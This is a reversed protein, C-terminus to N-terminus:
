LNKIIEKAAKEAEDCLAKATESSRSEAFLFIGDGRKNSRLLVRNGKEGLFIGEGMGSKGGSNEALRSLIRQPPCQIRLFRNELAFQPINEIFQELKMLSKSIIKLSNLALLAGDFLFPESLALDRASKDSNDNPCLFFRYVNRNTIKAIEEASSPFEAPVSFDCGNEMIERGVISVLKAYDTKKGDKGIFEAKMGSSSINVTLREGNKGSIKKFFPTISKAILPNNCKVEISYRSSFDSSADLLESYLLSANKFNKVEGFDNWKANRYDGRNIAAELKREQVRTLPLAGKNLITIHSNIGSQIYVMGSASMIRSIHILAPLSCVGCDIIKNGAGSFGACFCAKLVASANGLSCAAVCKDGFVAACASGLLTMFAPTIDSNTEGSVGNEDFQRNPKAGYKLDKKLQTGAPVEKNDWVKVSPEIVSERRLVSNAGLVANEYVAAGCETVANECIIGEVCKTKDALSAGDMVIGGIIKCDKGIDANNELVSYKDIFTNKGIRVNEGIFCPFNIKVGDFARINNKFECKVKGLLIDKQCKKYSSLDGIDCWYGNEKYAALRLGDKLMKPFVDKSFDFEKDDTIMKLLEPSIVYIGTNVFDSVAGSFSPKESFGAVFGNNEVVCGYERPDDVQKLVITALAKSKKHFAVAATLNFDCMADGSIVLFDDKENQAAKKVCGATGLPTNEYSFDIKVGGIKRGCFYNEIQDGRYRLTFIADTFGHKALLELIYESVPKGCLKVLPKPLSCTMPRLRSGEGGAMIIAKM